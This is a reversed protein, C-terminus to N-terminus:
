FNSVVRKLKAARSRSRFMLEHVHLPRLYSGPSKIRAPVWVKLTHSMKNANLHLAFEVETLFEIILYRDPSEFMAQGARRRDETTKVMTM